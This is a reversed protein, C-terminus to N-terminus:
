IKTSQIRLLHMRLLLYCARLAPVKMAQLLTLVYTCIETRNLVHYNWYLMLKLSHVIVLSPIRHM